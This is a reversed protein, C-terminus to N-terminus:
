SFLLSLSRRGGTSPWTRRGSFVWCGCRGDSLAQMNALDGNGIWECYQRGEHPCTYYGREQAEVIISYHENSEDLSAYLDLSEHGVAIGSIYHHNPSQFNTVRDQTLPDIASEDVVSIAELAYDDSRTISSGDSSSRFQRPNDESKGKDLLKYAGSILHVLVRAPLTVAEYQRSRPVGDAGVTADAAGTETIVLGTAVAKTVVQEGANQLESQSPFLLMSRGGEAFEVGVEQLAQKEHQRLHESMSYNGILNVDMAKLLRGASFIRQLRRYEVCAFHAEVIGPTGRGRASADNARRPWAFKALLMLVKQQKLSHRAGCIRRLAAALKRVDGWVDVVPEKKGGEKSPGQYTAEDPREDPLPLVAHDADADRAQRRLAAARKQLVKIAAVHETSLARTAMSFKEAERECFRNAKKLLNRVEADREAREEARASAVQRVAAEKAEALERDREALREALRDREEVVADREAELGDRESALAESQKALADHQATVVELEQEVVRATRRARGSVVAVGAAVAEVDVDDDSENDAIKLPSKPARADAAYREGPAGGPEAERAARKRDSTRLALRVRRAVREGLDQVLDERGVVAERLRIGRRGPREVGPGCYVIFREQRQGPLNDRQVYIGFIQELQTRIRSSQLYVPVDGTVMTDLLAIQVYKDVPLLDLIQDM